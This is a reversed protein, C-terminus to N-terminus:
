PSQVVYVLNNGQFAPRYYVGDCNYYEVGGKPSSVCGGPLATVISGLPPAGAPQSSAPPASPATQPAPAPASYTSAAAASTASVAVARRTTRRAVGAYSFPTLPAGIIAAAEGVFGFPAPAAPMLASFPLAMLLVAIFLRKTTRHMKM